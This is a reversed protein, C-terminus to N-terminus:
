ARGLLITFPSGGGGVACRGAFSVLDLFWMVLATLDRLRWAPSLEVLDFRIALPIIGRRHIIPYIEDFGRKLMEM